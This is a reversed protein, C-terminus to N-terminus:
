SLADGGTPAELVSDIWNDLVASDTCMQIRQRDSETLAVGARASLRLLVDRKGRLEGERFGEIKGALRGARFRELKWRELIQLAPPPLSTKSGIPREM